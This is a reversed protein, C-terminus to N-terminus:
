GNEEAKGPGPRPPLQRLLSIRVEREGSVEDLEEPFSGVTNGPWGPSM